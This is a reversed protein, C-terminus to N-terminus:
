LLSDVTAPIGQDLGRFHTPGLVSTLETNDAVCVMPDDKRYPLAAFTIKAEIGRSKLQQDTRVVLEKLTTPRGTGVNLFRVGPGKSSKEVVAAIAAVLDDIFMFDRIQECGTLTIQQGAKAAEVIYPILREKPEGPGYVNFLRLYHMSLEDRYKFMCHASATKSIAYASGPQLLSDERLPNKSSAYEYATGLLFVQPRQRLSAAASLVNDTGVTNSLLLDALSSQDRTVGKSALHLIHSPQIETLAETLARADLVDINRFSNAGHVERRGIVHPTIGVGIYSALLKSGLFGAAGTILLNV